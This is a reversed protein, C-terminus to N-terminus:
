AKGAPASGAPAQPKVGWYRIYRGRGADAHAKAQALADEGEFHRLLQKGRFVDVGRSLDISISM